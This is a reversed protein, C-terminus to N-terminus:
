FDVSTPDDTWSYLQAFLSIERKKEIPSLVNDATHSELLALRVVNAASVGGTIAARTNYYSALIPGFVDPDVNSATELDGLINPYLADELSGYAATYAVCLTDDPELGANEAYSLVTPYEAEISKWERYLQKKELPTIIGDSFLTFIFTSISASLQDVKSTSTKLDTAIRSINRGNVEGAVTLDGGNIEIDTNNFVKLKRIL